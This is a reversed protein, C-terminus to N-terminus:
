LTIIVTKTALPEETQLYLDCEVSFAYLPNRYHKANTNIAGKGPVDFTNAPTVLYYATDYAVDCTPCTNAGAKVPVGMRGNIRFINDYRESPYDGVSWARIFKSSHHEPSSIHIHPYQSQYPTFDMANPFSNQAQTEGTFSAVILMSCFAVILERYILWNMYFRKM